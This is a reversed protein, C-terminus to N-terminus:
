KSHKLYEERQKDLQTKQREVEKIRERLKNLNLLSLNTYNESQVRFLDVNEEQIKLKMEKRKLAVSTLSEGLKLYSQIVTPQDKM